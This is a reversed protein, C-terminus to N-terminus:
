WAHIPQISVERVMAAYSCYRYPGQGQERGSHGRAPFSVLLAAGVASLLRDAPIVLSRGCAQGRMSPELGNVRARKGMATPSALPETFRQSRGPETRWIDTVVAICPSVAACRSVCRSLLLAARSGPYAWAM